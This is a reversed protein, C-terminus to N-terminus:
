DNKKFKILVLLQLYNKCKKIAIETSDKEDSVDSLCEPDCQLNLSKM